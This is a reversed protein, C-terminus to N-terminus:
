PNSGAVDAILPPIRTPFPNDIFASTKEDAVKRKGILYM